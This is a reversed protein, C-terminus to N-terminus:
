LLGKKLTHSAASYGGAPASAWPLTPAGAVAGASLRALRPVVQPVLRRRPRTPIKLQHCGAGRPRRGPRRLPHAPDPRGDELPRARPNQRQGARSRRARVWTRCEQPTGIGAWPLRIEGTYGTDVNTAITSPERSATPRRSSTSPEALKHEGEDKIFMEDAFLIGFPVMSSKAFPWSPNVVTIWVNNFHNAANHHIEWFFHEDGFSIFFEVVDVKEGEKWIVAGEHPNDPRGKCRAPASPSSIATSPRTASTSSVGQRLRVQRPPTARREPRRAQQAHLRDRIPKAKAWCPDDLTGDIM